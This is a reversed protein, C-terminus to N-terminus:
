DKIKKIIWEAVLLNPVWALWAVIRYSDIFEMHLVAGMFPLWLRLTVAAFSLAYSRIMWRRHLQVKKSQIARWALSTSILWAVALSGFGLASVIGGTAYFAIYLGAVGSLICSLVYIKGLARHLPLRNKRLRKSFQSFGTLLAIGGFSIHTYFATAWVTDALLEPSKSSLLGNTKM